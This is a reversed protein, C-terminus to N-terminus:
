LVVSAPEFGSNSKLGLKRWIEFRAYYQIAIPVSEPGKTDADKLGFGDIDIYCPEM